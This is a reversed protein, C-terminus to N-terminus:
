SCEYARGTMLQEAVRKARKPCQEAWKSRLAEDHASTWFCREICNIMVKFKLFKSVGMQFAMNLCAERRQQSAIKHYEPWRSSLEEEIERIDNLLIAEAVDKSIQDPIKNGEFYPQAELNHGYGITKKGAPCIYSSLRLGEEFKLQDIIKTM